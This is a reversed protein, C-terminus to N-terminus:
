GPPAGSARVAFVTRQLLSNARACRASSTGTSISWRARAPFDPRPASRARGSERRGARRRRPQQRQQPLLGSRTASSASTSPVAGRSASIRASCGCTISASISGDNKPASGSASFSAASSTASARAPARRRLGARDRRWNPWSCMNRIPARMRDPVTEASCAPSAKARSASTSMRARAHARDLFFKAAACPRRRPCCLATSASPLSPPRSIVAVDSRSRIM